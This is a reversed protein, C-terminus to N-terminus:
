RGEEKEASEAIAAGRGPVSLGTGSDQGDSSVHLVGVGEGAEGALDDSGEGDDAEYGPDDAVLAADAAVGDVEGLEAAADALLAGGGVRSGEVLEM